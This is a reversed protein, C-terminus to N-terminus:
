DNGVEPELEPLTGWTLGCNRCHSHIHKEPWLHTPPVLERSLNSGGCSPCCAAPGSALSLLDLVAIASERESNPYNMQFAWILGGM